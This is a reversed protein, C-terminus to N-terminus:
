YPRATFIISTSFSSTTSGGDKKTLFFDRGLAIDLLGAYLLIQPQMAVVQEIQPKYQKYSEPLGNVNKAVQRLLASLM